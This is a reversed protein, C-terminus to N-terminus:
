VREGHLIKCNIVDFYNVTIEDKIKVDMSAMLTLVGDIFRPESNANEAHNTFRGAITRDIGTRMPCIVDGSNIPKQSFIGDGSISSECVVIHDFGKPTHIDDDVSRMLNQIDDESINMYSLFDEYGQSEVIQM